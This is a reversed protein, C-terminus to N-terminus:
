LLKKGIIAEFFRKVVMDNPFIESLYDVACMMNGLTTKLSPCIDWCHLVTNNFCTQPIVFCAVWGSLQLPLDRTSIWKTRSNALKYKMSKQHLYHFIIHILIVLLLSSSFPSAYSFMLLSCYRLKHAFDKCKLIMGLISLFSKSRETSKIEAEVALILSAVSCVRWFWHMPTWQNQLVLAM